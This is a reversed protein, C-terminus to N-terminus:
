YNSELFVETASVLIDKREYKSYIVAAYENHGILNLAMLLRALQIAALHFRTKTLRQFVRQMMSKKPRVAQFDKRNTERRFQDQNASLQSSHWRMASIVSNSLLPLSESLLLDHLYTDFIIRLDKPVQSSYKSFLKSRIWTSDQPFFPESFALHAISRSWPCTSRLTEGRESIDLRACSIWDYMNPECYNEILHGLRQLSNPLLLDDSNLWNFWDGSGMSFGKLIADWAGNDPESIWAYLYRSYKRLISLSGDTSGGDVVIYQLSTYGQSLVSEITEELFLSQNYSPTVLTLSPQM